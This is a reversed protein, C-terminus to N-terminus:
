KHDKLFCKLLEHSQFMSVLYGIKYGGLHYYCNEKKGWVPLRKKLKHREGKKVLAHHLDPLDWGDNIALQYLHFLNEEELKENIEKSSYIGLQLREEMQNYYLQYNSSFSFSKDQWSSRTKFELYFGFISEQKEVLSVDPLIYAGTQIFLKDSKYFNNPTQVISQQINMSVVNEYIQKFSVNQQKFNKLSQHKLYDLWRVPDVMYAPEVSLLSTSKVFSPLNLNGNYINLSDIYTKKKVHANNYYILPIKQIGQVSTWQFNHALHEWWNWADQILDGLPSIGYLHSRRAILATSNFSCAPKFSSGDILTISLSFPLELRSLQWLFSWTFIGGGVVTIQM